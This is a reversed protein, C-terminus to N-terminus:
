SDTVISVRIETFAHLDLSLKSAISCRDSAWVLDIRYKVTSLSKDHSYFHTSLSCCTITCVNETCGKLIRSDTVVPVRIETSAHFRHSPKSTESSSVVGVGLQLPFNEVKM